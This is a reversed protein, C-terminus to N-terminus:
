IGFINRKLWVDWDSVYFDDPPLKLGPRGYLLFYGRLSDAYTVKGYCKYGLKRLHADDLGDSYEGLCIFDAEGSELFEIREALMEKTAGMQCIWYRCAPLHGVPVGIGKEVAGFLVKPHEIQSMIYAARYYGQRDSVKAREVIIVHRFNFAVVFLAILVSWLIFKKKIAPFRQDILQIVQIILFLSFLFIPTFYHYEGHTAPVLICVLCLILWYRSKQKWCFFLTGIIVLLLAKYRFIKLLNFGLPMAAHTSEAKNEITVFTNIFYEQIFAGFDALSLFYIIFPLTPLVVGILMGKLCSLAEKNKVAFYLAVVMFLAVYCAINWKILLCCTFSIGMCLSMKFYSWSSKKTQIACVFYISLLVFPNCFDEAKMESHYWYLLIFIPFIAVAVTSLRESLYLRCLRYAIFLTATYFGVSIWFVGVYSHHSILYGIGYILWLLPGKSDAFDVYPVMGNMWAKGCTFFIASDYRNYLDYLYSDPSLFFLLILSYLACLM